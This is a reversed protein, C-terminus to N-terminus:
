KAQEQKLVRKVIALEYEKGEDDIVFLKRKEVAFKVPGNVTLMAAKSRRSRLRHQAVYVHMDADIVFTEYGRYVARHSAMTQGQYTGYGGNYVQANGTTNSSGITGAYYSSRETDLVKGTQWDHAKEAAPASSTVLFLLTALFPTLSPRMALDYCSRIRM